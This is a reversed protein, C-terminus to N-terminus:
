RRLNDALVSRLCAILSVLFTGPVESTSCVNVIYVDVSDTTSDFKQIAFCDGADRMSIVSDDSEAGHTCM